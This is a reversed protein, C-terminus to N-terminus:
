FEQLEWYFLNKFLKWMRRHHLKECGFKLNLSLTGLSGLVIPIVEVKVNWLKRIERALDQCKEVKERGKLEIRSDGPIAVDMIKCHKNKKDIFVLDPRRAQIVHDTQISFDWLINYNTNEMPSERYHERGNEQMLFVRMSVYIGICLRQM